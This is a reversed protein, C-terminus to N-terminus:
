GVPHSSSVTRYQKFALAAGVFAFLLSAYRTENEGLVAVLIFFAAILAPPLWAWGGLARSLADRFFSAVAFIVILLIMIFLEM